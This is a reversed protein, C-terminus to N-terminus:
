RLPLRGNTQCSMMPLMNTATITTMGRPRPGATAATMRRMRGRRIPAAKAEARKSTARGFFVPSVLAAAAM